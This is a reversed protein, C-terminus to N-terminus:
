PKKNDPKAAPKGAPPQATPKAQKNVPKTKKLIEYLKSKKDTVMTIPKRGDKSKANINAGYEVLTKVMDEKHEDTIGAKNELLTILPTVKTEKDTSNVDAGLSILTKAFELPSYDDETPPKAIKSGRIFPHQFSFIWSLLGDNKEFTAGNELLCKVFEISFPLATKGPTVYSALLIPTEGSKNKGNFDFNNEKFVEVCKKFLDLKAQTMLKSNNALEHLADNNSKKDVNTKKAGKSLLFKIVDVKGAATAVNLPFGWFEIEKNVIEPDAAVMEELVKMNGSSIATYLKEECLGKASLLVLLMLVFINKM